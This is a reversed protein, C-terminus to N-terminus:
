AVCSLRGLCGGIWLSKALGKRPKHCLMDPPIVYLDEDVAKVVRRSSARHNHSGPVPAGAGTQKKTGGHPGVVVKQRRQEEEEGNLTELTATSWTVAKKAPKPSAPLAIVMGGAQLQLASEFYQTVPWDGGAYGYGYGGHDDYYNWEGFAPIRRPRARVKKM